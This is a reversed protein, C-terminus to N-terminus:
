GMRKGLAYAVPRPKNLVECALRALAITDYRTHFKVTTITRGFKRKSTVQKIAFSSARHPACDLWGALSSRQPFIKYM